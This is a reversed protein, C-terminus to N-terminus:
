IFLNKVHNHFLYINILFVILSILQQAIPKHTFPKHRHKLIFISAIPKNLPKLIFVPSMTCNTGYSRYLSRVIPNVPRNM